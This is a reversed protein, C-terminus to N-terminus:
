CSIFWFRSCILELTFVEVTRHEPTKLLRDDIRINYKVYLDNNDVIAVSAM